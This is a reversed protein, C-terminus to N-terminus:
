YDTLFDRFTAILEDHLPHDRRIILGYFYATGDDFSDYTELTYEEHMNAQSFWIQFLRSRVAQQNNDPACIYILASQATDYFLDEIVSVVTQFVLRDQTATATENIIYFEYADEDFIFVDPTFGVIYKTGTNTCFRVSLEDVQTVRYPATKNIREASICAM